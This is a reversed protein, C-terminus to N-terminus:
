RLVRQTVERLERRRLRRSRDPLLTRMLPQGYHLLPLDLSRRVDRVARSDVEAGPLKQPKLYHERPHIEPVFKQIVFSHNIEDTLTRM